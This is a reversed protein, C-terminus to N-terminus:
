FGERRKLFALSCILVVFAAFNSVLSWYAFQTANQHFAIILILNLIAFLVTIMAQKQYNQALLFQIVVNLLANFFMAISMLRVLFILSETPSKIGFLILLPLKPLLLCGLMAGGAFFATIGLSRVFINFHEKSGTKESSVKPFMAVAVAGGLFVVLRGLTAAYAFETENPLFHKVFIVDATMLFAYGAQVIFSKALFIRMSPLPETSAKVIRNKLLLILLVLISVYMGLSHGLLAWGCAPFLLCVFIACSSVRVFAGSISSALGSGFRQMGGFVGNLVPLIFIAPIMLGTIMVPASRELHLFATLPKYFACILAMLILAPVLSLSIWKRTLRLVDGDRGDQILLSSYHTMGTSLTGLPYQLFALAGLFATLLAYESEPLVRSVLMQFALNCIHVGMMGVFIILTHKLLADFKLGKM